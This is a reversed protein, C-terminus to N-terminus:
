EETALDVVRFVARNDEWYSLFGETVTLATEWSADESWDGGVLDAVQIAQEVNGFYQYFTAPSTQAQRAIDTVKVSRWSTTTLLEVTAELLRMRTQLGREGPVRGDTTAVQDAYADLSVVAADRRPRPGAMLALTTAGNRFAWTVPASVSDPISCVTVRGSVRACCARRWRTTSAAM